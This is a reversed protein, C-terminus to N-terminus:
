EDFLRRIRRLEEHLQKENHAYLPSGGNTILRETLAVSRARVAHKQLVLTLARLDDSASAIVAPDFLPRASRPTIKPPHTAQQIMADLTRALVKRRRRSLLRMRERQVAAIPITERGEAILDLAHDHVRQLLVAVRATLVLLVFGASAVLSPAWAHGELRAIIAGVLVAGCARWQRAVGSVAEIAGPLPHDAGLFTSASREPSKGSPWATPPRRRGFRLGRRSSAPRPIQDSPRM